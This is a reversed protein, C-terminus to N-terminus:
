NQYFVKRSVLAGVVVLVLGVVLTYLWSMAASLGFNLSEFATSYVTKTVQSQMFSDIITYIINTLILPSVMPFTIKWFSEYATAGEIKAVEYMAGPISQLAALFILIQVGSSSIIDYIRLVADVLYDVFVEPVGADILIYMLSLTNFQGSAGSMEEAANADGLLNLLGASEAASVAASTLIVPLFFMSRALSRGPFKQNLLTASFLSFFLILPVNVAMAGVSEVLLRNFTADEFLAYKFNSWGVYELQYGGATITLKNLSFQISQLLPSAFLFVFGFLWPAIFVLGLIMRRQSLTLKIKRM